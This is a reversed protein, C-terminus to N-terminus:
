KQHRLFDAWKGPIKVNSGVKICMGTGQLSRTCGKISQERYTDWVTHLSSFRRLEGEVYKKFCKRRFRAMCCIESNSIGLIVKRSLILSFLGLVHIYVFSFVFYICRM